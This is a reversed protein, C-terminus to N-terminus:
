GEDYEGGAGQMRCAGEESREGGLAEGIEVRRGVGTEKEGNAEDLIIKQESSKCKGTM